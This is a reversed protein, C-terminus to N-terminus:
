FDQKVNAMRGHVNLEPNFRSIRTAGEQTLKSKAAAGQMGQLKGPSHAIQCCIDNCLSIAKYEFM